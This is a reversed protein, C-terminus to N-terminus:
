GGHRLVVSSCEGSEARRDNALSNENCMSNSETKDSGLSHGDRIIGLIERNSCHDSVEGFLEIEHNKSGFGRIM